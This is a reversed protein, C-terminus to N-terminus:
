QHKTSYDDGFYPNRIVKYAHYGRVACLLRLVESSLARESWVKVHDELVNEYLRWGLRPSRRVEVDNKRNWFCAGEPM